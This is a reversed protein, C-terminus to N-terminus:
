EAATFSIGSLSVWRTPGPSPNQMTVSGNAHVDVRGVPFNGLIDRHYVMFLLRGEPRMDEPLTVITDGVSGVEIVDVLGTLTVTRGSKTARPPEFGFGYDIFPHETTLLVSYDGSLADAISASVAQEAIYAMPTHGLAVPGGMVLGTALDIIIVRPVEADIMEQPTPFGLNFLFRGEDLMVGLFQESVLTQYFGQTDISELRVEVDMPGVVPDGNADKLLGQFSYTPPPSGQIDQDGVGVVPGREIPTLLASQLIIASGSSVVRTTNQLALALMLIIVSMTGMIIIPLLKKM